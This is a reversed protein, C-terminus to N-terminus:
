RYKVDFLTSDDDEDNEENLPAMEVREAPTTIIDYKRTKRIKKGSRYVRVVLCTILLTTLVCVFIVVNKITPLDRLITSIRSGVAVETDNRAAHEETVPATSNMHTTSPSSSPALPMGGGERAVVVFLLLVALWLFRAPANMIKM